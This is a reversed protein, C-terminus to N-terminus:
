KALKKARRKELFPRVFTAMNMAFGIIFLASAAYAGYSAEVYVFSAIGMGQLVQSLQYIFMWMISFSCFGMIFSGVPTFWAFLAAIAIGIFVGYLVYNPQELLNFQAAADPNAKKIGTLHKQFNENDVDDLKVGGALEYTNFSAIETGGEKSNPAGACSFVVLPLCFAVFILAYPLSSLVKFVVDKQTVEEKKEAM